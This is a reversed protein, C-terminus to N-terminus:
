LDNSIMCFINLHSNADTLDDTRDRNPGGFHFDGHYFGRRNRTQGCVSEQKSWQFPVEKESPTGKKQKSDRLIQPPM